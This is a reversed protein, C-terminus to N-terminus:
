GTHPVSAVPVAVAIPLDQTMTTDEEARPDYRLITAIREYAPQMIPLPRLVADYKSLVNLLTEWRSFYDNNQLQESISLQSPCGCRDFVDGAHNGVHKVLNEGPFVTFGEAYTGKVAQKSFRKRAHQM